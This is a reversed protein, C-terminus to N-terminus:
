VPKVTKVAATGVASAVDGASKIIQTVIAKRYEKDIKYREL